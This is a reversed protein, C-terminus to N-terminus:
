EAVRMGYVIYSVANKCEWGQLNQAAESDSLKDWFLDAHEFISLIDVASIKTADLDVKERQDYKKDISEQLKM